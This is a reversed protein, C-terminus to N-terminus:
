LLEAYVDYEPMPAVCTQGFQRSQRKGHECSGAARATKIRWGARKLSEKMLSLPECQRDNIGGFRVVLRVGSLCHEAVNEWVRSLQRIFDDPSSHTLEGEPQNYPVTEPGGLFWHRLWQDPLYTRMGYYPPSTVICSFRQGDFASSSRSDAQRIEGPVPKPLHRLYREARVRVVSLVDVKPPRLGRHRWFRVAYDPKPAFTRPSQNSLHSPQYKTVPGHLAGLMIARLVIRTDSQCSRLLTTRLRCIDRLTSRHYCAQWFKGRPVECSVDENELILRAANTVQSVSTRALKAKAIAVAISSSDIGVTPLGLLRAAFNTTGRGCFPDLIWGTRGGKGRLVRLPFSLPYMTYYPCVSNLRDSQSM